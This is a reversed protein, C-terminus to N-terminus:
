ISVIAITQTHTHTNALYDKKEEEKDEDDDTEMPQKNERIWMNIHSASSNNLFSVRKYEQNNNKRADDDWINKVNSKKKPEKSKGNENKKRNDDFM